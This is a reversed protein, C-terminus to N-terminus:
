LWPCTPISWPIVHAKPPNSCVLGCQMCSQILQEIDEDIKPWWIYLGFGKEEGGGPPSQPAITACATKLCRPNCCLDWSTHLREDCLVYRHSGDCLAASCTRQGQLVKSLVPDKSTADAANKTTFPYDLPAEELLLIGPPDLLLDEQSSDEIPCAAMKRWLAKVLTPDLLELSM